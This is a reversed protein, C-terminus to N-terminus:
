CTAAFNACNQRKNNNIYNDGYSMSTSVTYTPGGPVLGMFLGCSGTCTITISNIKSTVLKMNLIESQRGFCGIFGGVSGGPSSINSNSVIVESIMLNSYRNVNGVLGGCDSLANVSINLVTVNSLIFITSEELFGLVGGVHVGYSINCYEVSSNQISVNRQGLGIIGGAHKGSMINSNTVLCFQAITQNLSCGILGGANNKSQVNTSNVSCFKLIVLSNTYGVFAGSYMEINLSSNEVSSNQITCNIGQYSALFPSINVGNNKIIMLSIQLNQANLYICASSALAVTGFNSMIDVSLINLLINSESVSTNGELIGIIGFQAFTSFSKIVQSFCIRQISLQSTALMIKGFLLGSTQVYYIGYVQKADYVLDSLQVNSNNSNMILGGFQFQLTPTTSLFNMVQPNTVNGLVINILSFQVISNNVNIFLFSSLNGPNYSRPTVTINTFDVTSSNIFVAGLAIQGLTIYNGLIQYNTVKFVGSISDILEIAGQSASSTDLNLCLNNVVTKISKFQLLYMKYSANVTITSGMKSLINVNTLTLTTSPTLLSGSGVVQTGIQIKVQSFDNQSQFLPQITSSYVNDEINLFANTVVQATPFVFGSSFDSKSVVNTVAQIDFSTFYMPQNCQILYSQIYEQEFTIQNYIDPLSINTSLNCTAAFNACNQRKNNNIYNDGYSMSTSVTYTPGGPVLGMFLGCSGTCTITISNIKSTVLKMNLIESQRGFCGIFGGVSGGPSSINSNSVIVESIMLNSYRNVNGVLGGCDSLANVSINLVTVNSLIFITSEELFGLVGGVHVGYSINCYEVSSNQISVNRQGLGIIGGAHKGSMINSNTVLCFQAITQNLSCGILGGANNKSQVNTSNVSCFKLIVLSNTYGVFAGSYMEINLSSNEVSSNQITCNIGQYSALFPSINVGNNKIIMLSIQLNQANLYICASSALAVTGFNSMIDVSLINLLINSESVSTNGELIGIIGFQAFTTFSKIVQSFCIRQISLQSTALMIKGFLLGSTQVYYIGYVQKADYVLDSLQVNSNNSNM